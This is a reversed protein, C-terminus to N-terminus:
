LGDANAADFDEAAQVSQDRTKLSVERLRQRLAERELQRQYSRVADRIVGSRTTKMRRALRTLLADFEQDAKVTITKM